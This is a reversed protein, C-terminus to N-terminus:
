IEVNDVNNLHEIETNNKNIEQSLKNIENQIYEKDKLQKCKKTLLNNNHEITQQHAKAIKECNQEALKFLTKDFVEKYPLTFDLLLHSFDEFTTGLLLDFYSKLNNGYVLITIDEHNINNFRLKRYFNTLRITGCGYFDNDEYETTKEDYFSEVDIDIEKFAKELARSFEAVKFNFISKASTLKNELTKLKETLEERKTKIERLTMDLNHSLSKLQM